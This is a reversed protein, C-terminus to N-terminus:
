TQQIGSLEARFTCVSLCVSPYSLYCEWSRQHLLYFNLSCQDTKLDTKFGKKRKLISAVKSAFIACIRLKRVNQVPSKKRSSKKTTFIRNLNHIKPYLLETRIPSDTVTNIKLAQSNIALARKLVFCEVPLIKRPM